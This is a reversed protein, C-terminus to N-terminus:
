RPGAQRPDPHVDMLAARGPQGVVARGLEDVEVTARGQADVGDDEGGPVEVGGRGVRLEVEGGPGGGRPQAVQRRLLGGVAVQRADFRALRHDHPAGPQREDVQHHQQELAPAPAVLGPRVTLQAVHGGSPLRHQVDPRRAAREVVRLGLVRQAAAARRQGPEEARLGDVRQDRATVHVQTGLHPRQHGLLDGPAPVVLQQVAVGVADPEVGVGEGVPVRGRGPARRLHDRQEVLGHGVAPVADVEGRQVTRQVADAGARQVRQLRQHARVDLVVQMLVDVGRM